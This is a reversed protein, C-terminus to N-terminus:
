LSLILRSIPSAGRGTVKHARVCGARRAGAGIQEGEYGGSHWLKWSRTAIVTSRGLWSMSTLFAGPLAGNKQTPWEPV